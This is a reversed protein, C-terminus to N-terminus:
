RSSSAYKEGYYFGTVAGFLGIIPAFILGLLDLLQESTAWDFWLTLFSGVVIFGLM